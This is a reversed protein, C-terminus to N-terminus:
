VRFGLRRHGIPSGGSGRQTARDASLQHLAHCGARVAPSFRRNFGVMLNKQSSQDYSNKITELEEEKLCLPKEVFIHKNSEIGKLVFEAHSHHRTAIFLTNIKEDQIIEDAKDAAYSFGYKKAVYM